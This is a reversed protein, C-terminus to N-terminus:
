RTDSLHMTLQRLRTPSTLDVYMNNNDLRHSSLNFVFIHLCLIDINNFLINILSSISGLYVCVCM